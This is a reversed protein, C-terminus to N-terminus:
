GGELCCCGSVAVFCADAVVKMHFFKGEICCFRKKRIVDVVCCCVVVVCWLLVGCCCEM